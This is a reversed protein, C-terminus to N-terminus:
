TQALKRRRLSDTLSIGVLLSTGTGALWGLPTGVILLLIDVAVLMGGLLALARLLLDLLLLRVLTPLKVDRACILTLWALPPAGRLEQLLRREDRWDGLSVGLLFASVGAFFLGISLPVALALDVLRQRDTEPGAHHVGFLALGDALTLGPWERRTLWEFGEILLIVPALTGAVLGSGILLYILPHASPLRRTEFM